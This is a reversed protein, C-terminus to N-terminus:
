QTATTKTPAIPDGDVGCAVLAMLGLALVYKIM